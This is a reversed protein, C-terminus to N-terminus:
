ELNAHNKWLNIKNLRLKEIIQVSVIDGYIHLVQDFLTSMPQISVKTKSASDSLSEKIKKKTKKTPANIEVVFNAIKRISSKKASTIHLIKCGIKKAKKSIHLPVISEGSGSAVILLDKKTAPKETLAGVLEVKFGLHSLRKGFCQLSLNVRGIAVLFIRNADIIQNILNETQKVPINSLINMIESIIIESNIQYINKKM